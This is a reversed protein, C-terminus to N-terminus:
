KISFLVYNSTGGTFKVKAPDFSMEVYYEGTKSLDYFDGLDCSLVELEATPGLKHEATPAQAHASNRSPMEEWDSKTQSSNAPETVIENPGPVNKRYLHIEVGEALAKTEPQCLTAPVNQDVGRRNRLKLTLPLAAGPRLPNKEFNGNTALQCDIGQDLEQWRWNTPFEVEDAPVRAFCHDGTFGFFREWKGDVFGEEAQWVRGTNEFETTTWQRGTEDGHGENHSFDKIALWRANAGYKPLVWIRARAEALLSFIALGKDVEDPTAPQDLKPFYPSAVYPDLGYSYNMRVPNAATVQYREGYRQLTEVAVKVATDRKEVPWYFQLAPLGAKAQGIGWAYLDCVRYTDYGALKSLPDLPNLQAMVQTGSEGVGYRVMWFKGVLYGSEGVQSHDALGALLMARFSPVGILPSRLLAQGENSGGKEHMFRVWASNKDTFIFTAAKQLAPRDSNEWLPKFWLLIVQFDGVQEPTVTTLWGAYDDLIKKDGMGALRETLAILPRVLGDTQKEIAYRAAMANCFDRVADTADKGAWTLLADALQPAAQPRWGNGMDQTSLAKIRKKLLTAVDPNQKERLSQGSKAINQAAAAWEDPKAQDDALTIFWQEQVSTGKRKEWYARIAAVVRARADPGSNTLDQGTSRIDFFSTQFIGCLATYAAEHAGLVTRDPSFDRWFHVSRTYRNDHELCDILAPVADNGEQVLAKVTGNDELRVWGPQGDQEARVDELDAILASIWATKDAFHNRGLELAVQRSPKKIRREMDALYSPVNKLFDFPGEGEGDSKAPLAFTAETKKVAPLITTIQRLSVLALDDDGRMQACIARNYLSFLWTRAIREFAEKPEKPPEINPLNVNKYCADWLAAAVEPKGLRMLLLAKVPLLTEFSLAYEDSVADMYWWSEQQDKGKNLPQLQRQVDADVSCQDGVALVPYVWGNWCVAFRQGTGSEAPLVWGHTQMATGDTTWEGGSMNGWVSGTMVKIQRYECGRPDAMGLGFFLGTLDAQLKPENPPTWPAQSGPPAPIATGSFSPDGGSDASLFLGAWTLCYAIFVAGIGSAVSLPSKM